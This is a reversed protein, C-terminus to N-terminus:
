EGETWRNAFYTKYYTVNGNDLELSNKEQPCDNMKGDRAFKIKANAGTLEPLINPAIFGKRRSFFLVAINM